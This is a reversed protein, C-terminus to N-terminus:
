RRKKISQPTAAYYKNRVKIVTVRSGDIKRDGQIRGCMAKGMEIDWREDSSARWNRKGDFEFRYGSRICATPKKAM